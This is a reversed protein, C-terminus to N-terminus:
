CHTNLLMPAKIHVLRIRPPGEKRQQNNQQVVTCICAIDYRTSHARDHSHM